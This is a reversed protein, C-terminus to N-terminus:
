NSTLRCKFPSDTTVGSNPIIHFVHHIRGESCIEWETTQKPSMSVLYSVPASPLKHNHAAHHFVAQWIVCPEMLRPQQGRRAWRRSLHIWPVASPCSSPDAARWSSSHDPKRRKIFPAAEWQMGNSKAGTRKCSFCEHKSFRPVFFLTGFELPFQQLLCGSGEKLELRCQHLKKDRSQWM